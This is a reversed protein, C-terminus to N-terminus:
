VDRGDQRGCDPAKAIPALEEILRGVRFVRARDETLLRDGDAAAASNPM